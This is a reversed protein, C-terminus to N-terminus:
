RSFLWYLGGAVLGVVLVAPGYEALPYWWPLPELDGPAYEIFPEDKPWVFNGKCKARQLTDDRQDFFERVLVACLEQAQAAPADACNLHMPIDRNGPADFHAVVVLAGDTLLVRAAANKNGVAQMLVKNQASVYLDDATQLSFHSLKRWPRAEEYKGHRVAGTAVFQLERTKEDPRIFCSIIERGGRGPAFMNRDEEWSVVPLKQDDVGIKRFRIAM